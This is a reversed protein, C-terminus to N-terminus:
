SVLFTATQVLLQHNIISPLRSWFNKCHWIVTAPLWAFTLSRNYIFVRSISVLTIDYLIIIELGYNYAFSLELCYNYAFSLELGYNYAISLELGYNYAFSLELGYNYAFNLELGYNYAFRLELGHNYAICLEIGYDNCALSLEFGYNYAHSLDSDLIMHLYLQTRASALIVYLSLECVLIIHM